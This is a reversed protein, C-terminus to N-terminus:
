GLRVLGMKALPALLAVLKAPDVALAEAIEQVTTPTRAAGIIAEATEPAPLESRAFGFLRDDLLSRYDRGDPRTRATVKTDPGILHSAYHGFSTWPDARGPAHAPPPNSGAGLYRSRRAQERMEALRQWLAEYARIVIKWDFTSRARERGARGMRERLSEDEALRCLADTLADIDVSAMMAAYGCYRDYNFEGGEFRAALAEGTGPPPLFTPILFGDTGDRVTDRYGNWDTAIVPLGTAMAELPTLGFTEQINDSLSIFLDAAAWCSRRAAADRGDVYHIPVHPAAAAGGKRFDAEIEANAFWGCQVLAIARGTRAAAAEVAQFMADPHAKAHFALRGVYLIVLADDALGLAQRARAREDAAFEFDGAHVGLPIVPLQPLEPLVIGAGFRWLLYDREAELQVAVTEAVAASTCILADWPMLPATRLSTLSRMAAAAATTHTVGCLSFAHPGQRLRLGALGDIVPGPYFLTGVQSLLVLRDAGCWRPTVSPDFGKVLRAYPEAWERRPVFAWLDKGSRAEVAARLFSEGAVHRGLINRDSTVYGDPNFYIAASAEM